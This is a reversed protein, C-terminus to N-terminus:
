MHNSTGRQEQKVRPVLKILYGDTREDTSWLLYYLMLLNRMM